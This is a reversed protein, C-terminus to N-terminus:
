YFGKPLKSSILHFLNFLDYIFLTVRSIATNKCVAVESRYKNM